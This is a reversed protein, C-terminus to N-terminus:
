KITGVMNIKARVRRVALGFFVHAEMDINFKDVQYIESDRLREYM